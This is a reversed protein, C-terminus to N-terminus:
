AGKQRIIVDVLQGSKDYQYCTIVAGTTCYSSYDSEYKSGAHSVTFLIDGVVLALALSIIVTYIFLKKM